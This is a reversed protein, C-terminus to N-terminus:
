GLRYKIMMLAAARSLLLDRPDSLDDAFRGFLNRYSEMLDKARPDADFRAEMRAITAELEAIGPVVGM